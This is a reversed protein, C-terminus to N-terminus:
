VGLLEMFQDVQCIVTLPDCSGGRFHANNRELWMCWCIVMPFIVGIHNKFVLLNSYFLTLFISSLCGCGHMVM